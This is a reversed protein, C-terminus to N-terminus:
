DTLGHGEELSDASQMEELRSVTRAFEFRGDGAPYLDAPEADAAALLKVKHEYLQDILTVFRSAENRQERTMRPIGVIIVTHFHRAIALYDAAGRAEGCLRKFSFVAVGKLSKPVRMTRGGGVDLQEVPVNARDEVPYDTMRFFAEALAATAQAGNPVLWTDLGALRDLRYDTPGNLPIVQMRAEILRIFPLFLERNLGDRYLDSPPRNSTTVIGVGADLLATFLRSMIMADAPNNIMMEDFALFRVEDALHGAVQLVPDSQKGKRAARLREHVEIMFAHFHVRRKPEADIHRFALDMLMSKGRGVGGWLYVGSRAPTERGFLRSLFGTRTFGLAIGFRDLAAAAKAQDPDANLEGAAVLATYADIVNPMPRQPM